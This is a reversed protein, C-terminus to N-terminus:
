IPASSCWIFTSDFGNSLYKSLIDYVDSYRGHLFSDFLMHLLKWLAHLETNFKIGEMKSTHKCTHVFNKTQALITCTQEFSSISPSVLIYLFRNANRDWSRSLVFRCRRADRRRLTYVLDYLCLVSQFLVVECPFFVNKVSEVDIYRHLMTNLFFVASGFLSSNATDFTFHNLKHWTNIFQKRRFVIVCTATSKRELLHSYCIM